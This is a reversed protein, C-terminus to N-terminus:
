LLQMQIVIIDQAARSATQCMRTERQTQLLDEQVHRQNTAVLQATTDLQVSQTPHIPYMPVAMAISDQGACIRQNPFDKRSVTIGALHISARLLVIGKLM